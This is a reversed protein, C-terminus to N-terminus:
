ATGTRRGRFGTVTTDPVYRVGRDVAGKAFALAAHGPNVTGDTPFLVGGVLDDVVASPWLEHIRARDVVEVEVGFDRAMSVGYRIEDM